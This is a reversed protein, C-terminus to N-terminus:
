QTVGQKRIERRLAELARRQLAKVASRRKGIAHAVESVTLGGQVRLLLVSRQDDTLGNLVQALHRRDLSALAEQEVDGATTRAELEDYAAPDEAIRAARRKSDILRHHAITLAWARFSREDGKFADLDRVVQLFVEGTVDEPESAGQARLYGLVAPSLDRYIIKWAWEAGHRAAAMVDPYEEGIM